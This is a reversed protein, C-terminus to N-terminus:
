INFPVEVENNLQQVGDEWEVKYSNHFKDSVTFCRSHMLPKHSQYVFDLFRSVYSRKKSRIYIANLLPVATVRM